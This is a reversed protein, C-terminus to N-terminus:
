LLRRYFGHERLGFQKARLPHLDVFGIEHAVPPDIVLLRETRASAPFPSAPSFDSLELVKFCTKHAFM